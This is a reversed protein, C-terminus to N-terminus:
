PFGGQWIDRSMCLVSQRPMVVSAFTRVVSRAALTRVGLPSKCCRGYRCFICSFPVALSSGFRVSKDPPAVLSCPPLCHASVSSPIGGIVLCAQSYRLSCLCLQPALPPLWRFPPSHPRGVLLLGPALAVRYIASPLYILVAACRRCLRTRFLLQVAVM